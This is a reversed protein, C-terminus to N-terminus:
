EAKSTTCNERRYRCQQCEIGGAIDIDVQNGTRTATAGSGKINLTDVSDASGLLADRYKVSIDGTGTSKSDNFATTDIRKLEILLNYTDVTDSDLVFKGAANWGIKYNNNDGPSNDFSIGDASNIANGAETTSKGRLDSVNFETEGNPIGTASLVVKLKSEPIDVPVEANIEYATNRETIVVEGNFLTETKRLATNLEKVQSFDENEELVDNIHEDTITHSPISVDVRNATRTVVVGDGTFNLEGVSDATGLLDDDYKVSIGPLSVGGADGGDTAYNLSRGDVEISDFQVASDAVRKAANAIGLADFDPTHGSETHTWRTGDWLYLALPNTNTKVWGQGRRYNRGSPETDSVIWPLPELPDRILEVLSIGPDKGQGAFEPVKFPTGRGGLPSYM